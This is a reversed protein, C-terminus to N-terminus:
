VPAKLPALELSSRFDQGQYDDDLLRRKRLEPLLGNLLQDQQDAQGLGHLSIVDLLGARYRQEIADALVEPVGAVFWHGTEEAKIILERLTLGQLAFNRFIEARGRRRNVQALQPLRSEPLPQDLPLDQLEIEGGLMDAVKLRGRQYDIREYKERLRRAVDAESDGIISHFSNMILPLNNERGFARARQQLETVFTNAATFTPQSTYIVEAYRAGLTIGAESQGAQFQVPRHQPPPPVNLPGAVRFYEGQYNIPHLRTPDIRVAGSASRQVAERENADFLANIVEIFETARAYREPPSPLESDGFNEEGVSSTVANWGARGASVHDLTGILRALNYPHQWSTSVTAILGIQSTAQSLAALTIIPDQSGTTGALGATDAQLLDATFLGTIKEKEAIKALAIARAIGAGPTDDNAAAIVNAAGVLTKLRRRNPHTM